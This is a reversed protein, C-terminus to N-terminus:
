NSSPLDGIARGEGSAGCNASGSFILEGPGGSEKFCSISCEGTKMWRDGTCQAIGPCTASLRCSWDAALTQNRNSFSALMAALALLAFIVLTKIRRM